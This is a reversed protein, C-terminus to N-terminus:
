RRRRRKNLPKNLILFMKPLPCARRRTRYRVLREAMKDPFREVEAKVTREPREARRELREARRELKEARKETREVKRRPGEIKREIKSRPSLESKRLFNVERSRIQLGRKAKLEDMKNLILENQQMIRDTVSKLHALDSNLKPLQIKNILQLKDAVGHLASLLVHMERLAYEGSTGRNCRCARRTEAAEDGSGLM